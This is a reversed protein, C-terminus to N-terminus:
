SALLPMPDVPTAGKRLEFHLQPRNVSGTMGVTGIQDGRRVVADKAVTIDKLHAYASVFGNSHRILVLNGYGEIGNGVYIVAGSESARVAAGDPAEINIGTRRSEEFNVIVRGNVPWRFEDAVVAQPVAAVAPAAAASAEQTQAEQTQAQAPAAPAAGDQRAPPSAPAPAVSATTVPDTDVQVAPAAEPRSALLDARGPIVLKQGVFIQDPASLGNARVIADTTVDYRRAVAYLSEGSEVTHRFVEPEVVSLAPAARDAAVQPVPNDQFPQTVRPQPVAAIQTQASMAQQSGVSSSQVSVPTGQVVANASSNQLPPLTQRSPVSAVGVSAPPVYPGSPAPTDQLAGPMAQNLDGQVSQSSISNTVLGDTGFNSSSWSGLTSCGSLALVGAVLGVAKLPPGFARTLVRSSM